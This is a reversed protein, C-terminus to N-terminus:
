AHILIMADGIYKFTKMDLNMSTPGQEQFGVM